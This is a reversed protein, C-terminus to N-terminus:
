GLTPPPIFGSTGARIKSAVSNKATKISIEGIEEYARISRKIQYRANKSLSALFSGEVNDISSLQTKYTPAEWVTRCDVGLKDFRNFKDQDSVGIVLSDTMRMHDAICAM